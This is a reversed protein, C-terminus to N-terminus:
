LDGRDRGRRPGPRMFPTLGDGLWDLEHALLLSVGRQYAYTPPCLLFVLSSRCPVGLTELSQWNAPNDPVSLPGAVVGCVTPFGCGMTEKSYRTASTGAADEGM